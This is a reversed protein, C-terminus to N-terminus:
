IDYKKLTEILRPVRHTAVSVQQAPSWCDAHAFHIGNCAMVLVVRELTMSKWKDFDGTGGADRFAKEFSDICDMLACARQVKEDTLHTM